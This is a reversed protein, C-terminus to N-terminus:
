ATSLVRRSFANLQKQGSKISDIQTHREFLAGIFGSFTATWNGASHPAVPHFRKTFFMEKVGLSENIISHTASRNTQWIVKFKKTETDNEAKIKRGYKIELHTM